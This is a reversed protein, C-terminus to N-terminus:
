QQDGRPFLQRIHKIRVETSINRSSGIHILSASSVGKVNIQNVKIVPNLQQTRISIDEDIPLYPIPESFIPYAGFNGENGFFIEAERQVALARSFSNIICSDGIQVVSSYSAVKLNLHNVSSTRQFM